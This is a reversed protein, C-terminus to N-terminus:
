LYIESFINKQNLEIKNLATKIEVGLHIKEILKFEKNEQLIGPIRKIANRVVIEPIVFGFESLLLEKIKFTSFCFLAKEVLCFQIFISLTAYVDLKKKAFEGFLAISAMCKKGVLTDTM